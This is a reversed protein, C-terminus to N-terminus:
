KGKKENAQSLPRISDFGFCGDSVGDRLTHISDVEGDVRRHEPLSNLITLELELPIRHTKTTKRERRERKKREERGGKSRM